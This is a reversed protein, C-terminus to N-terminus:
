RKIDDWDKPYGRKDFVEGTYPNRGLSSELDFSILYDAIDYGDHQKPAKIELLDSVEIRCLHSFAKAKTKWEAFFGKDPFLYVTRGKLAQFKSESLGNAQGSAIWIYEPFFRSAILATKEGEVIAITKSTDAQILHEGFFCQKLEFDKPLAPHKANHLKSHIWDYSYGQKQRKGNESNYRVLKGSRVKGQSDVQWFIPWGNVRGKGTGVNYRIATEKAKDFTWSPLNALWCVLQNEEFRNLTAELLTIPLTFPKPIEPALKALRQRHRIPTRNGTIFKLSEVRAKKAYGDKYPNLHFLCKQIRDCRGFNNPLYQGTESDVYRM